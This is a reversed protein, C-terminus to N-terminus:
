FQYKLAFQLFRADPTFNQFFRPGTIQGGNSNLNTVSPIGLAPTNFLNFIDGRFELYQKRWTPFDKFVSMNARNYGPGYIQNRRGGLLALVQARNTVEAPYKYGPQPTTYSGNYPGPSIEKGSDPNAFACPNYWNAKTRV